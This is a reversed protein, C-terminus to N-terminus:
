RQVHGERVCSIRLLKFMLKAAIITVLYQLAVAAAGGTLVIISFIPVTFTISLWPTEIRYGIVRGAIAWLTILFCMLVMVSANFVATKKFYRRRSQEDAQALQMKRAAYLGAAIGLTFSGIPLGMCMGLTVISYFLYLVGLTVGSMQYAAKLWKKMLATDIAVAPVFSWLVWPGLEKTGFLVSVVVVTALLCFLVPVFGFFVALMVCEVCGLIDFTLNSRM